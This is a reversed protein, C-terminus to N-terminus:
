SQINAVGVILPACGGGVCDIDPLGGEVAEFLLRGLGDAHLLSTRDLQRAFSGGSPGLGTHIPHDLYM